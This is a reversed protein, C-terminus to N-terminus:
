RSQLFDRLAAAVRPVVKPWSRTDDQWFLRAAPYWPTDDRDVLWRWDARYALLIWLPKGMAGVLHAVSSDVAIVLDMADILAATDAFDGLQDGYHAIGFQRILLDDGPRIDKQLSIWSAEASLLPALAALGISRNRDNKQLSNGSWAIGIRPRVAGAPTAGPPPL